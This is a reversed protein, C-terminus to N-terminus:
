MGPGRFIAIISAFPANVKAGSFRLRGRIFRIEAHHLIYDHFYTTETRAPILLVVLTNKKTGEEYAKAVWKWIARGYPPNCFVRHGEWSQALGDDEKTFYRECKHNDANACPDLDFHFEKDLAAFLDDPTSWEDTMSSYFVDTM